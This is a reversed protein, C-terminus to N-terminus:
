RGQDPREEESEPDLANAQKRRFESRANSIVTVMIQIVNQKKNNNSNKISTIKQGEQIM